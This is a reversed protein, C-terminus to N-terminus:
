GWPREQLEPPVSPTQGRARAWLYRLPNRMMSAFALLGIVTWVWGHTMGIWVILVPAGVLLAVGPMMQGRMPLMATIAAAIVWLCGAILAATM